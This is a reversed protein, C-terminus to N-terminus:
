LFVMCLVEASQSASINRVRLIDILDVTGGGFNKTYNAYAAQSAYPIPIGWKGAKGSGKCLRALAEDGYTSNDDVVTELYVDFDSAVLAFVFTSLDLSADFLKQTTTVGVTKIFTKVNGSITLTNPEVLSGFEHLQGNIKVSVHSLWNLVASM